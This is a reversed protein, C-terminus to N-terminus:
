LKKRKTRKTPIPLLWRAWRVSTRVVARVWRRVGRLLGTRQPRRPQHSPRPAILARAQLDQEYGQSCLYQVLAPELGEGVAAIRELPVDVGLTGRLYVQMAARLQRQNCATVAREVLCCLRRQRREESEVLPVREQM